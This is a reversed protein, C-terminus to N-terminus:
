RWEGTFLPEVPHQTRELRLQTFMEATHETEHQPNLRIGLEESVDEAAGILLLEAGAYNLFDPPDAAIFRREGFREQLWKPFDAQRPPRLGVGPPAPVAPNKVALIYSGEEQIGLARQVEGPEAPLELAYALHVHDDHRALAYVGEGAPRAAPQAREGRTRTSYVEQELEDAIEAPTRAMRAVYAWARQGDSGLEPLKKRGVILLRHHHEGHPSLVLSFRQVDEIGEAEREQVRPRYFFYINGRELVDAM